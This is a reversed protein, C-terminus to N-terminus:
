PKLAPPAAVLAATLGTFGLVAFTILSADYSGTADRLLGSLLPGAAQAGVQVTLAVGRIAGFSRRGFYDAWAIPLTTILGGVGIGFLGAAAYATPADHVVLMLASSAGLALGVLALAARLAIRRPWFGFAFGAIGSLLAFTSVAGAAVAPDLGREILFPAQHLSIGSQVPYVLLTFLSLLWFAPTAVAQRRTFAPEPAAAPATAAASVARTAPRDGDPRQGIDEPRRVHLLWTPLFGIVLVTVGVALWATRWDTAQMTLHAIMPMAVLGSMLAVTSISTVFTRRRVFWNVISGYIGLDYPGAFNMRAVCYLLYFVLLSETFSLLLLPIATLLVAFCLVARAGNRDLFPGLLPSVLAGLIGGISVAGSIETRSWGFEATMPEIFISLTAVAPGQRSFGAACVCGLIVWGYFFPLRAAFQEVLRQRM